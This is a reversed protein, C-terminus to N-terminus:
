GCTNAYACTGSATDACGSSFSGAGFCIFALITVTSNAPAITGNNITLYTACSPDVFQASTQTSPPKACVGSNYTLSSKSSGGSVTQAIAFTFCYGNCAFVIPAPTPKNGEACSVTGGSKSYGAYYITGGVSFIVYIFSDTFTVTGGICTTSQAAAMSTVSEIVPAAWLIGGVVAGKALLERRSINTSKLEM